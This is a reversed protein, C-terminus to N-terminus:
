AVLGPALKDRGANLPVNEGVGLVIGATSKRMKNGEKALHHVGHHEVKRDQLRLLVSPICLGKVEVPANPGWGAVIRIVVRTDEGFSPILHHMNIPISNEM